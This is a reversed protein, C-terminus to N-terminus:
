NSFKKYKRFIGINHLAVNVLATKCVVIKAVLQENNINNNINMIKQLLAKFWTM